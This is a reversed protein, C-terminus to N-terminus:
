RDRTTPENLGGDRLPAETLCAEFIEDGYLAFETIGQLYCELDLNVHKLHPLRDEEELLAVLLRWAERIDNVIRRVMSPIDDDMHPQVPYVRFALGLTLCELAHRSQSLFGDFLTTFTKDPMDKRTILITLIKLTNHMDGIYHHLPFGVFHLSTYAIM